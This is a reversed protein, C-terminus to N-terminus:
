QGDEAEITEYGANRLYIQIIERIDADDDVIMIKSRKM